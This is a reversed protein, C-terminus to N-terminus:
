NQSPFVGFLSICFNIVLFPQRNEHPQSGGNPSITKPSFPATVTTPTTKWVKNPPPSGSVYSDPGPIATNETTTSTTAAAVAHKHMPMETNLITVSNSGMVEGLVTNMTSSQGWHMPISGQLNPVGFNTTGNGGFTTGLIAFLVQYQAIPLLGGNCLAWGTPAFDFGFTRIEGVFPDM